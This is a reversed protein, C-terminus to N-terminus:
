KRPLPVVNSQDKAPSAVDVVRRLFGPSVNWQEGDDTVVSVTKKNYRVLVGFLTPRGEPDFCVRDGVRFELMKAHARTQQLFRLREVIQRNLAVLQQESLQTIDIKM